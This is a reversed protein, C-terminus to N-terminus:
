IPQLNETFFTVAIRASVDSNSLFLYCHLGASFNLKMIGGFKILDKLVLRWNTLYKENVL